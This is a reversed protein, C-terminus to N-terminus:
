VPEGEAEPVEPTPAETEPTDQSPTGQPASEISSLDYSLWLVVGNDVAVPIAVETTEASTGPRVAVEQATLAWDARPGARGTTVLKRDSTAIVGGGRELVHAFVVGPLRLLEGVAADVAETRGSAVASRIGAAFARGVMEGEKARRQAVVEAANQRETAIETQLQEERDQLRRQWRFESWTWVGYGIAALVILALLEWVIRPIKKM